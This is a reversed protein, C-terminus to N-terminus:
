AAGRVLQWRAGRPDRLGGVLLVGVGLAASQITFYSLYNGISFDGSAGPERLPIWLLAMLGLLAFAVRSCGIWRATGSGADMPWIKACRRRRSRYIVECRSRDAISGRPRARLDGRGARYDPHAIVLVAVVPVRSSR